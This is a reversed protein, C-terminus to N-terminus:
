GSCHDVEEWEKATAKCCELHSGAVLAMDATLLLRDAEFLNKDQERHKEGESHEARSDIDEVEQGIGAKALDIELCAEGVSEGVEDIRSDSEM